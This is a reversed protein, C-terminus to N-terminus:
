FTLKKYNKTKGGLVIHYPSFAFLSVNAFKCKFSSIFKCWPLVREVQYVGDSCPVKLKISM